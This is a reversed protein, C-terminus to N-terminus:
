KSVQVSTTKPLEYLLTPSLRSWRAELNVIAITAAWESCSELRSPGHSPRHEVRFKSLVRARKEPSIRGPTRFDSVLPRAYANDYVWQARWSVL